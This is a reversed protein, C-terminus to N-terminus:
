SGDTRELGLMWHFGVVVAVMMPVGEMAVVVVSTQKDTGM